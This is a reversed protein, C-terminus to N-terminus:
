IAQQMARDGYRESALHRALRVLASYAPAGVDFASGPGPGGMRAECCFARRILSASASTALELVHDGVVLLDQLASDRSTFRWGSPITIRAHEASRNVATVRACPGSHGGLGAVSLSVKGAHLAEALEAELASADSAAFALSLALAHRM